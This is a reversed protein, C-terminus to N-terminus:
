NAREVERLLAALEHKWLRAFTHSGHGRSREDYPIMVLRGRAVRQMERELIGLEPPNILDDMSNIAVLRARIKELGPGPDYDNSSELAYLFDNADSYKMYAEAFEDLAADAEALTPGQAQRLVPNGMMFFVMQAALRLSPPQTTYNGDKWAPDGRIADSVMRRWVRNRGSVQTPLSGLPVLADMFDPHTIGWLWTLMGGSSTGMVLRLHNVELHETLLRYDAQVMDRYGYRPFKARLGDSPKSSDGHGLGDRLIIFYKTIDLPQGPRYLEGAFEPRLFQTGTGTTGHMLLVANTVRGRADRRPAGLTRYHLRVEPLKEGSAFAFDRAVYTGERVKFPEAAFGAAAAAIFGVLRILRRIRNM